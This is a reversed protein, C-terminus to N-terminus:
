YGMAQKAAAAEENALLQFRAARELNSRRLEMTIGPADANNRFQDAHSEYRLSKEVHEWTSHTGNTIATM